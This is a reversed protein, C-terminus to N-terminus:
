VKVEGDEDAYYYKADPEGLTVDEVGCARLCEDIRKKAEKGSIELGMSMAIAQEFHVLRGHKECKHCHFKATKLQVEFTQRESKCLPCCAKIGNTTQEVDVIGADELRAVYYRCNDLPTMDNYDFGRRQLRPNSIALGSDPDTLTYLYHSDVKEVMILGLEVLGARPASIKTEAVGLAQALARGSYKLTLLSNHQAAKWLHLYMLLKLKTTKKTIEETLFANPLQFYTIGTNRLMNSM